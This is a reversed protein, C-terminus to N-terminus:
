FADLKILKEPDFDIVVEKECPLYNLKISKLEAVSRFLEVLYNIYLQIDSRIMQVKMRGAQLKSFDLMQNVLNLLLAANKEIKDSGEEAWRKSDNRILEAMGSIVTLPTRFEHTINTFLRTKAEDLEKLRKAELQEMKVRMSIFNLVFILAFGSIWLLNVVFLSINVEPTMEPPIELYPHLIGALVITVVYILFIAISHRKKKYNM